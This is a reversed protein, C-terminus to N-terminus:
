KQHYVAFAVNILISEKEKTVTLEDVIFMRNSNKFSELFKNVDELSAATADLSYHKEIPGEDTKTEEDLPVSELSDITTNSQSAFKELQLLVSEPKPQSPILDMANGSDESLNTSSTTKNVQSQFLEITKNTSTLESKMPKLVLSYAVLYIIITTCVVATIGLIRRKSLYKNM